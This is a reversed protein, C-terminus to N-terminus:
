RPRHRLNLLPYALALGAVFGGIHAAIAISAGERSLALGFLLQLGIWGAALWLVHIALNLRPDASARRQRGYLLAYAGLVASVAGSAGIMPAQSAPDVLYQGLAAVIAGVLYLVILGIPGLAAETPRGCFVLMLMNFGLHMLDAHLLTASFPTLWAPLAGVVEVAGSFRGPIFGAALAAVDRIGAFAILAWAAATVIAIGQTARAPPLRV